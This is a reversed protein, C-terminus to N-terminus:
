ALHSSRLMEVLQEAADQPVATKLHFRIDALRYYQLRQELLAKARDTGAWLPRHESLNGRELVMDVPADLWISVGASRIIARNEANVFTGGGTAVVGPGESVIQQLVETEIARFVSEGEKTFIETIRKGTRREIREDLDHFPVGLQRAMDRGITTKGVAMFGVLFYRM